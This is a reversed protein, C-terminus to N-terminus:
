TNEIKNFFVHMVVPFSSILLICCHNLENHISADGSAYTVGDLCCGFVSDECPEVEGSGEVEYCGELNFGSM